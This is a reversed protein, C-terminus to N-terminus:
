SSAGTVVVTIVRERGTFPGSVIDRQSEFRAVIWTMGQTPLWDSVCRYLSREVPKMSSASVPQLADRRLVSTGPGLRGVSYYRGDLVLLVASSESEAHHVVTVTDSTAAVELPSQAESATRFRLLRGAPLGFSTADLVGDTAIVASALTRYELDLPYSARPQDVTLALPRLAYIGDSAIDIGVDTQISFVTAVHHVFGIHGAWNTYFAFSVSVATICLGLVVAGTVFRRKAIRHFLFLTATCLLGILPASVYVPRLVRTEAVSEKLFQDMSSIRSSPLISAALRDIDTEDLDAARCTVVYVNGAGYPRRVLLPVSDRELLTRAGPRLSGTLYQTGSPAEYLAPLALPLLSRVLPSDLQYFDSGTCIVVSGGSLAWEAIATWRTQEVNPSAIWLAKVGSYAWWDRPLDEPDVLSETARFRLVAGAVVPFPEERAFLRVNKSEAALVRGDSDLLRAELPLVPDYIPLTAEYVGDHITGAALEYSLTQPSRMDQGADELVVLRGQVPGLLGAVEVRVPAFQKRVFQEDFGLDIRLQVTASVSQSCALCLALTVAGTLARWGADTRDRQM